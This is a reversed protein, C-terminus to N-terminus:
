FPISDTDIHTIGAFYTTQTAQIVEDIGIIERLPLKAGVAQCISALADESVMFSNGIVTGRQIGYRTDCVAITGASLKEERGVSFLYEKDDRNHKVFACHIYKTM